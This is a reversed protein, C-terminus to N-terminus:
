KPKAKLHSVDSGREIALEMVAEDDRRPAVAKKEKATEGSLFVYSQRYCDGSRIQVSRTCEADGRRNHKADLRGVARTM